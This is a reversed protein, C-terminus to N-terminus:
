YEQTCLYSSYGYKQVRDNLNDIDGNNDWSFGLWTNPSYDGNPETDVPGSSLWFKDTDLFTRWGEDNGYEREDISNAGYHSSHLNKREFDSIDASNSEDGEFSEDYYLGMPGLGGSGNGYTTWDSPQHGYIDSVYDVAIDYENPSRPVFLQLGYEECTNNDSIRYTVEGDDKIYKFTYTESTNLLTNNFSCYVKTETDNFTINYYGSDKSSDYSILDSCTEAYGLNTINITKTMSKKNIDKHNISINLQLKEKSSEPFDSTDFKDPGVLNILLEDTIIGNETTEYSYTQLLENNTNENNISIEVNVNKNTSKINHMDLEMKSINLAVNSIDGQVDYNNDINITDFNITSSAPISVFVLFSLLLLFMLITKIKM